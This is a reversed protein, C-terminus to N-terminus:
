TAQVMQGTAVLTISFLLVVEGVNRDHEFWDGLM